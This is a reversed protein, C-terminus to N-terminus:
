KFKSERETIEYKTKYMLYNNIAKNLKKRLKKRKSKSEENEIETKLESVNFFCTDM